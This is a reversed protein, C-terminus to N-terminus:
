SMVKYRVGMTGPDHITSKSLGLSPNTSSNASSTMSPHAPLPQASAVQSSPIQIPVQERQSQQSAVANSFQLLRDDASSPHAGPTAGEALHM